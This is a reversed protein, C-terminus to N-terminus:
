NLQILIKDIKLDKKITMKQLLQAQFKLEIM